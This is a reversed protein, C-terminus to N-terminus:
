LVLTSTGLKMKKLRGAIYSLFAIPEFSLAASVLRDSLWLSDVDLAECADVLDFIAEPEIEKRPWQGLAIGIRVKMRAPNNRTSNKSLAAKISNRSSARTSSNKRSTSTFMPALPRSTNM